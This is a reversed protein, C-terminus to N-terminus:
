SRVYKYCYLADELNMSSKEDGGGIMPNGWLVEGKASFPSQPETPFCEATFNLIM